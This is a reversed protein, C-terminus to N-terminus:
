WSGTSINSRIWDITSSASPSDADHARGSKSLSALYEPIMNSLVPLASEPWVILRAGLGARQTERLAGDHCRSEEGAM